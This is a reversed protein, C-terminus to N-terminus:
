AKGLATLAALVDPVIVLPDSDSCAEPIRSVLVAAAGKALADAAFDHGDRVDKLAVFLDGPQLSRTDISIGTVDFARTARGGTATEVEASTWLAAM